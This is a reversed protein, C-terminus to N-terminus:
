TLWSGWGSKSFLARVYPYGTFAMFVTGRSYWLWTSLPYRRHPSQAGKQQPQTVAIIHPHTAEQVVWNHLTAMIETANPLHPHFGLSWLICQCSGHHTTPHPEWCHVWQNQYSIPHIGFHDGGAATNTVDHSLVNNTAVLTETAQSPALQIRRWCLVSGPTLPRRWRHEIHKECQHKQALKWTSQTKM